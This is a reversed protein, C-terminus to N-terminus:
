SNMLPRGMPSWSSISLLIESRLPTGSSVFFFSASVNLAGADEVVRFDRCFLEVASAAYAPALLVLPRAAQAQKGSEGVHLELVLRYSVRIIEPLLELGHGVSGRSQVQVLQELAEHLGFSIQGSDADFGQWEILGEGGIHLEDGVAGVSVAIQNM